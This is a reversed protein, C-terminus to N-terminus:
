LYVRINLFVLHTKSYNNFIDHLKSHDTFLLFGNNLDIDYSYLIKTLFIPPLNHFFLYFKTLLFVIFLLVGVFLSFFKAMIIVLKFNYLFLKVVLIIITQIFFTLYKLFFGFTLFCFTM